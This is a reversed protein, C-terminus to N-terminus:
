LRVRLAIEVGRARGNNKRPEDKSLPSSIHAALNQINGTHFGIFGGLAIDARAYIPFVREWGIMSISGKSQYLANGKEDTCTERFWGTMASLLWEKTPAYSLLPGTGLRYFSAGPQRGGSILTRFGLEIEDTLAMGFDFFGMSGATGSFSTSSQDEVAFGLHSSSRLWHSEVEMEAHAITSFVFLSFLTILAKM